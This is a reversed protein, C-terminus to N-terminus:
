SFDGVAELFEKPIDTKVEIFNGTRPHVFGIRFAHLALRSFKTDRGYKKDGLIPHGIFSLHVRLQHTRGTFPTLELM